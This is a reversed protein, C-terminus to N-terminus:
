HDNLWCPYYASVHVSLPPIFFTQKVREGKFGAEGKFGPAGVDGQCVVSLKVLFAVLM